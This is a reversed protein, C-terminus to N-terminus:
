KKLSIVVTQAVAAADQLDIRIQWTGQTLTRTGLNFIYQGATNDYRFTNGSDANSTSVAEIETGVVSNSIPALYIQAALNAIAASAGTLRFKVPITSGTMTQGAKAVVLTGTANPAPYNADRDGTRM